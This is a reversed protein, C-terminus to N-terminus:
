DWEGGRVDLGAAALAAKEILRMAGRGRRTRDEGGMLHSLGHAAYLVAEAERSHGLDKAARRALELNCVVEGLRTPGPRGPSGDEFALVDTSGSRGSFRRCLASMERDAVWALGLTAGGAPRTGYAAGALGGAVALAKELKARRPARMGSRNTAEIRVALPRAARRANM